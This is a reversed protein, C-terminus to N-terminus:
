RRPALFRVFASLVLGPLEIKRHHVRESLPDRVLLKRNLDEALTQILGSGAMVDYKATPTEVRITQM